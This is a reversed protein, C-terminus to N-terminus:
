ACSVRRFTTCPPPWIPSRRTSIGPSKCYPANLGEPAPLTGMVAAAGNALAQPIYDYGNASEGKIAAFLWGQRVARSDMSIGRIRVDPIASAAFAPMRKFLTQLNRGRPTSM